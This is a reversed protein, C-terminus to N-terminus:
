KARGLQTEVEYVEKEGQEHFQISKQVSFKHTEVNLSLVKRDTNKWETIPLFDGTEADFIRTSGALCKGIGPAGGILVLSGAVIGGGLVRDFEAIGSSTRMDDQSEIDSYSIPKVERFSNTSLRASHSASVKGVSQASPRFKEEVFTNYEGCDPCRGLWKRSQNGCNSCVYITAPQKAM